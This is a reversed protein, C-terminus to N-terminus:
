SNKEFNEYIKIKLNMMSPCKNKRTRKPRDKKM